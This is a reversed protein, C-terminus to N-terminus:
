HLKPKILVVLCVEVGTIKSFFYTISYSWMWGSFLSPLLRTFSNWIKPHTEDLCQRSCTWVSPRKPALTTPTKHFPHEMM